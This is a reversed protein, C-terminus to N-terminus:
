RGGEGCAGGPNGAIRRVHFADRGFERLALSTFIANVAQGVPTSADVVLVRLGPDIVYGADMRVRAEGFLGEAAFVAVHLTMEADLADVQKGFTYRYAEPVM